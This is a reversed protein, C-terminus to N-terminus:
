KKIYKINIYAVQPNNLFTFSLIACKQQLRETKEETNQEASKASQNAYQM